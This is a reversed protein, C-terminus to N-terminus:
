QAGRSRRNNALSCEVCKQTSTYRETHGKPCPRETKYTRRRETIATNQDPEFKM